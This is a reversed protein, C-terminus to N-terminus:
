ASAACRACLGSIVTDTREAKFGARKAAKRAAKTDVPAHIDEVAGCVRCVAHEHPETHPDYLVAGTGAHVRRALGLEDLLDLTAYVTPLSVGPLRDAVTERVQEATAHRDLEVLADHIVLRQPTVRMGRDHLADSLSM